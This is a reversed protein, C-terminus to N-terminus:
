RADKRQERESFARATRNDLIRAARNGCQEVAGALGTSCGIQVGRGATRVSGLATEPCAPRVNIVLRATPWLSQRPLRPPGYQRFLFCPAKAPGSDTDIRCQRCGSDFSPGAGVTTVPRVPHLFET